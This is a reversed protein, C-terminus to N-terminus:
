SRIILGTVQNHYDITAVYYADYGLKKNDFIRLSVGPASDGDLHFSRVKQKETEKTSVLISGDRDVFSIATYVPQGRLKKRNLLRKLENQVTLLSARLGYKMSMGMARNAFFNNLAPNKTFEKIEDQQESLFYNVASAQKEITLKAQEFLSQRLHIQGLYVLGILLSIYGGLLLGGLRIANSRTLFTSQHM